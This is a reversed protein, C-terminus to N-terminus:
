KLQVILDFPENSEGFMSFLPIDIFTIEGIKLMDLKKENNGKKFFVRDVNFKKGLFIQYRVSSLFMQTLQKGMQDMSQDGAPSGESGEKKTEDKKKGEMQKSPEFHFLIQKKAAINQPILPFDEKKLKANPFKAYDPVLFSVEMGFDYESEIKKFNLNKVLGKLSEPMDKKEKEMMETMSQGSKKEGGSQSQAQELAKSFRFIWRVDLSGDDKLDLIHNIQFCQTLFFLPLLVLAMAAINRFRKAPRKGTIAANGTNRDTM